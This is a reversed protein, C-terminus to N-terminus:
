GGFIRSMAAAAIVGFPVLLVGIVIHKKQLGGGGPGLASLTVCGLSAIATVGGTLLLLALAVGGLAVAKPIEAAGDKPMQARLWVGLGWLVLCLVFSVGALRIATRHLREMRAVHQANAAM